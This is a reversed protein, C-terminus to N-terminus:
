DGERTLWEEFLEALVTVVRARIELPFKAEDENLAAVACGLARERARENIPKARVEMGDEREIVETPAYGSGTFNLFGKDNEELVWSGEDGEVPLLKKDWVGIRVDKVSEDTTDLYFGYPRKDDFVKRVRGSVKIYSTATM